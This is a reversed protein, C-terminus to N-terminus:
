LMGGLIIDRVTTIDSLSILYEVTKAIDEGTVSHGLKGPCINTFKLPTDKFEARISDIYGQNAFKTASYIAKDPCGTIGRISSLNIVYGGKEVMYPVVSEVINILGKINVELLKNKVSEDMLGLPSFEVTGACNIVIDIGVANNIVDVCEMVKQRATIDCDKHSLPVVFFKNKVTSNKFYDYIASGIQGGSGFIVMTKM